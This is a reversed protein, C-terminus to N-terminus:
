SHIKKSRELRFRKDVNGFYRNSRGSLTKTTLLLLSTDMGSSIPLNFSRISNTLKTASDDWGKWRRIIETDPQSNSEECHGTPAMLRYLRPPMCLLLSHSVAESYINLLGQIPDDYILILKM